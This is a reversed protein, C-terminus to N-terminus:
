FELLITGRYYVINGDFVLFEYVLPLHTCVKIMKRCSRELKYDTEPDEMEEVQLWLDLKIRKGKM